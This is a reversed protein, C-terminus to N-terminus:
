VILGGTGHVVDVNPSLKRSNAKTLRLQVEASHRTHSCTVYPAQHHSLSHSCGVLQISSPPIVREGLLFPTHLSKHPVRPGGESCPPSRPHLARCVLASLFFRSFLFLSLGGRWGISSGVSHLGWWLSLFVADKGIGNFLYRLVSATKEM